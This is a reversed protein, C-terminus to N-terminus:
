TPGDERGGGMARGAEGSEEVSGNPSDLRAVLEPVANALRDDTTVLQAGLGQTLAVYLADRAAINHRLEWAAELLNGTIPMRALVMDSLRQLLVTVEKADLEGARHKRALRYFVEADLHAVTVEDGDERLALIRRLREGRDNRVLLDLVASADFVLTM